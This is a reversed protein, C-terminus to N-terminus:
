RGPNLRLRSAARNLGGEFCMRASTLEESYKKLRILGGREDAHLVNDCKRPPLFQFIFLFAWVRTQVPSNRVWLPRPGVESVQPGIM